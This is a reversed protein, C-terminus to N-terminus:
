EAAARLIQELAIALKQSALKTDRGLRVLERIMLPHRLLLAAVRWPSVTGGSLLAALSPSLLTTTEDSIARVSAFPIGAQACLRAFVASEMDVAVAGHQGGLRRKEEETAVLRDMTLLNGHTCAGCGQATTRWRNGEETVVEDVFVVDGVRLSADLAGAFGAFILLRPVYSIGCLTPKSLVWHVAREANAQGLGTEILLVSHDAPGCFRAWVPAGPFSQRPRVVKRFPGSERRLAFFVCPDTCHIQTM